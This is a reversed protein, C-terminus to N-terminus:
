WGAQAPDMAEVLPLPLRRSREIEEISARIQPGLGKAADIFSLARAGLM